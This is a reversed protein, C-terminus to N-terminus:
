QVVGRCKPCVPDGGDHDLLQVPLEGGVEGEQHVGDEPSADVRPTPTLPYYSGNM